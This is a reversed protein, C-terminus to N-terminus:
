FFTGLLHLVDFFCFEFFFRNGFNSFREDRGKQSVIQFFTMGVNHEKSLMPLFFFCSTYVFKGKNSPYIKSFFKMKRKNICVIQQLQCYSLYKM